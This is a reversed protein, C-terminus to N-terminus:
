LSKNRPLASIWSLVEFLGHSQLCQTAAARQHLRNAVSVFHWPGISFRAPTAGSGLRYCESDAAEARVRRKLDSSRAPARHPRALSGFTGENSTLELGELLQKSRDTIRRHSHAALAPLLIRERRM